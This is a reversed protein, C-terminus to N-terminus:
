TKQQWTVVSSTKGIQNLRTYFDETAELKVHGFRRVESPLEILARIASGNVPSPNTLRRKITSIFDKILQKILILIM